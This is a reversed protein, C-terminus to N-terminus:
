SRIEEHNKALAIIKIPLESLGWALQLHKQEPMCYSPSLKTLPVKLIENYRDSNLLFNWHTEDQWEAMVGNKEDEKIREALIHCAVLYNEKDGGQFGGAFYNHWQEKPLYATSEKVCNPSGWGGNSYFGPHLTGILTNTILEEKVPSVVGMDVDMYFLHSCKNLKDLNDDFIMYRYLTPYPWKYPPIIIQEVNSGHGNLEMFEDTFVFITKHYGDLFYQALQDLLPQVFSKYKRTSILLIGAHINDM